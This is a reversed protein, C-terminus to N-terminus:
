GTVTRLAWFDGCDSESMLVAYPMTFYGGQGWDPGFSNRVAVTRSADDYGVALAAHGGM